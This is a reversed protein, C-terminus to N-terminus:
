LGPLLRVTILQNELDVALIVEDIFPLLKEGKPGQVGLVDNAGTEILGAVTGLAEGSETVVKCGILDAWLYGEDDSPPLANRPIRIEAKVLSKAPEPADYGKVKAALGKGHPRGGQVTVRERTGDPKVLDWSPFELIAEARDLYSEVRLEGKLGFVGRVLGM